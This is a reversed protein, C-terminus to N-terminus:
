FKTECRVAAGWTRLTRVESTSCLELPRAPRAARVSLGAPSFTPKKHGSSIPREKGLLKPSVAAIVPLFSRKLMADRRLVGNEWKARHYLLPTGPAERAGLQTFPSVNSETGSRRPQGRRSEDRARHIGDRTAAREHRERCEDDTSQRREVGVGGACHRQCRGIEDADRGIAGLHTSMEALHYGNAIIPSTPPPTPASSSIQSPSPPKRGNTRPQQQDRRQHEREAHLDAPEHRRQRVTLM